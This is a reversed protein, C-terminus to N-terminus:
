WNEQWGVSGGVMLFADARGEVAMGRKKRWGGLGEVEPSAFGGHCLENSEWAVGQANAQSM